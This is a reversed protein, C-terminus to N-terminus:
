LGHSAGKEIAVDIDYEIRKDLNHQNCTTCILPNSGLKCGCEPCADEDMIEELHKTANNMFMSKSSFLDPTVGIAALKKLATQAARPDDGQEYLEEIIAAVDRPKIENNMSEDERYFYLPQRVREKRPNATELSGEAV